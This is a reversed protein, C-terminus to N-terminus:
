RHYYFFSQLWMTWRYVQYVVCEKLSHTYLIHTAVLLLKSRIVFKNELSGADLVVIRKQFVVAIVRIHWVCENILSWVLTYTCHYMYRRNCEVNAIPRSKFVFKRVVNDGNGPSRLSILQLTSYAVTSGTQSHRPPASFLLLVCVCVHVTDTGWLCYIVHAHM